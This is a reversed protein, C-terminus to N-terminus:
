DAALLAARPVAAGCVDTRVRYLSGGMPASEDFGAPSLASPWYGAASTIYLDRLGAGGFAVSSTQKAPLAVRREVAGDPDYRVVQGGYWQACWLFGDRDTAMGDPIGEDAPMQVLVRKGSLSGSAPDVDYAHIRRAASDAFYLTRGDPSLALGNALEIAEDLVRLSGDTDILVLEGTREMGTEGWYLTGAYLRGAADVTLDNLQLPRGDLESQVTICDDPANWVHLGGFGTFVLRGDRNLAISNVQLDRSIMATSGGDPPRAFVLSRENDVWLLREGAADWTPGEGCVDGGAAM